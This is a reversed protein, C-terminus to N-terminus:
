SFSSFLAFNGLLHDAAAALPDCLHTSKGTSQSGFVAVVHYDLGLNGLDEKEIWAGLDPSVFVQHSYTASM